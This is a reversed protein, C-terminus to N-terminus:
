LNFKKPDRESNRNAKKTGTNAIVRFKFLLICYLVLAVTGPISLLTYISATTLARVLDYVITYLIFVLLFVSSKYKLIGALDQESFAIALKLTNREGIIILISIVNFLVFSILFYPVVSRYTDFFTTASLVTDIIAYLIVRNLAKTNPEDRKFSIYVRFLAIGMLASVILTIIGIIYIPTLIIESGGRQSDKIITITNLVFLISSILVSLLDLLVAALFLKSSGLKCVAQSYVDKKTSM